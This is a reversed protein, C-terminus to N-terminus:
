VALEADSVVGKRVLTEKLRQHSMRLVAMEDHWVETKKLYTDLNTYIAGVNAEVRALNTKVVELDERM